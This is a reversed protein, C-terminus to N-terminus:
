VYQCVRERCSARGIQSLYGGQLEIVLLAPLQQRRKFSGMIVSAPKLLLVLHLVRNGHQSMSLAPLPTRALSHGKHVVYYRSKSWTSSILRRLPQGLTIYAM